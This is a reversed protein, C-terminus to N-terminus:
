VGGDTPRRTATGYGGSTEERSGIGGAADGDLSGVRLVGSFDARLVQGDLQLHGGALVDDHQHFFVLVVRRGDPVGHAPGIEVLEHLLACHGGIVVGVDM